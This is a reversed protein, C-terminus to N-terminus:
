EKATGTLRMMKEVTTKPELYKVDAEANGVATAERSVMM